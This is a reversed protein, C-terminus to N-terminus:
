LEVDLKTVRAEIKIEKGLTNLVEQIEDSNTKIDLELKFHCKFKM